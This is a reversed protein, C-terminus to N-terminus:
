PGPNVAAAALRSALRACQRRIDPVAVSEWFTGRTIPGVAYIGPSSSGNLGIVAGDVDVELGLNLPDPRAWGRSLLDDIIPSVGGQFGALPGTCDIVRHVRMSEVMRSGRRRLQVTAGDADPDLDVVRGAHVTLQGTTLADKLIANVQPALRHRHVDWYPRIHRLFRRREELPLNNWLQDVHERVADVVGRWDTQEAEARAIQDRLWVTMATLSATRPLAHEAITWPRSPAHVHPLLGRRSIATIPGEHGADILSQVVDVMTLGTGIILVSGNAPIGEVAAPDWPNGRYAGNSRLPTLNGVALVLQRAQYTRGGATTLALLERNREVGVVEDPVLVLRGAKLPDGIEARLVSEIYTGFVRRPVFSHGTPQELRHGRAYHSLWEVFHDPQDPFASMNAARTNVRHGPNPSSYALGPGFSPRREFLYVRPASRGQRLLHLALLTGSFGGGVIAVARSRSAADDPRRGISPASPRSATLTAGASGAATESLDQAAADGRALALAGALDTGLRALSGRLRRVVALTTVGGGGNEQESVASTGIAPVSRIKRAAAAAQRTSAFRRRDISRFREDAAFFRFGGGERQLVGAAVGEIEIVFATPHTQM